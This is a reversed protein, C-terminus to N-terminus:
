KTIGQLDEAKCKEVSYRFEYFGTQGDELVFDNIDVFETMWEEASNNSLVEVCCAKPNKVDHFVKRNKKDNGM